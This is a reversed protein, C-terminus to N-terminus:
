FTMKKHVQESVRLNGVTAQAGSPAPTSHTARVVIVAISLAIIYGAAVVVGAGPSASIISVDVPLLPAKVNYSIDHDYYIPVLGLLATDVVVAEQGLGGALRLM